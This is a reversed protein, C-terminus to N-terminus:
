GTSTDNVIVEAIDAIIVDNGNDGSRVIDLPHFALWAGVLGMMTGFVMMYLSVQVERKLRDSAYQGMNTVAARFMLAPFVFIIVTAFTAGGIAVIFALDTWTAALVTVVSIGLVTILNLAGATQDEQALGIVDILGDRFGVFLLPYTCIVSLSIAARCVAALFDVNNYNNLIYGSCNGGFTLFGGATFLSFLTSCSGFSWCVVANYRKITNDKLEVYFRPANYHAVYATSLMCVLILTRISFVGEWGISGFSPKVDEDTDEVFRGYPLKYTGDFYREWMIITSLVIAAVGVFSFPALFNLNKVLCLPLLVLVTVMILVETRTLFAMGIMLFLSHFSDGLIVSLCWVAMGAKLMCVTAILGAGQSGMTKEWADRYTLAGSISCLRGILSFYYANLIGVMWILLIAPILASSTNGFAAVGSPLAVIGSGVINNVLNVIENSMTASGKHEIVSCRRSAANSLAKMTGNFSTRVSERLRSHTRFFGFGSISHNSDAFSDRWAPITGYQHKLRNFFQTRPTGLSGEEMKIADNQDASM